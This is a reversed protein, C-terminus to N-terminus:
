NVQKACSSQKFTSAPGCLLKALKQARSRSAVSATKLTDFHFCQFRVPNVSSKLCVLLTWHSGSDAFGTHSDSIPVLLMDRGMVGLSTTNVGELQACAMKAENATAQGLWWSTM